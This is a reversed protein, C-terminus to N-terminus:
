APVQPAAAAKARRRPRKTRETHWDAVYTSPEGVLPQGIAALRAAARDAMSPCVTIVLGPPVTVTADDHLRRGAGYGATRAPLTGSASCREWSSAGPGVHVRPLEVIQQDRPATIRPTTDRPENPFNTAM